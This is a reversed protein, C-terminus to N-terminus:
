LKVIEIERKNEEDTFRLYVEYRKEPLIEYAVEAWEILSVADNYVFERFGLDIIEDISNVRYFDFHYVTLRGEYKNMIIFTPSNVTESVGLGKCVGQVFRTKGSGLEGYLAVVDGPKLLESFKIAIQITEDESNSIFKGLM